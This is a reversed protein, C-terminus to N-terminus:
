PRPLYITNSLLMTANFLAVLVAGWMVWRLFYFHLKYLNLYEEIEPANLSREEADRLSSVKLTVYGRIVNYTLLVFTISAALWPNDNELGILISIVNTKKFSSRDVMNTQGDIGYAGSLVLDQVEGIYGWAIAKLVYPSLAMLTLLLILVFMPGTYTRRMLSYPDRSSPSFKTERISNDNLFFLGTTKRLDTKVLNAHHLDANTLASYRLDANELNSFTFNAGEFDVFQGICNSLNASGFYTNRCDCRQIDSESLDVRALSANSLNASGLRAKVMKAPGMLGAITIGNEKRETRDKYFDCGSMDANVAFVESLNAGPFCSGRLIAESLDAKSLNCSNFRANELKSGRFNAQHLNRGTFDGNSLDFYSFDPREDRNMPGALWAEHEDLLQDLSEGTLQKKPAESPKEGSIVPYVFKTM